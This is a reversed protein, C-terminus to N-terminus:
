RTCGVCQNIEVCAKVARENVDLSDVAAQVRAALELAYADTWDDRVTRRGDAAWEKVKCAQRCSWNIFFFGDRTTSSNAAGAKWFPRADSCDLQEALASESLEEVSAFLDDLAARVASARSQSCDNALLRVSKRLHEAQCRM